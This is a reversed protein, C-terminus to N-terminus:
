LEQYKASEAVIYFIPDKEDNAFCIFEKNDIKIFKMYVNLIFDWSFIEKNNFKEIKEFIMKMKKKNTEYTGNEKLEPEGSWCVDILLSVRANLVDYEINTILSDHLNHYYELFDKLNEENLEIM